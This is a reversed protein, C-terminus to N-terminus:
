IKGSHISNQSILRSNKSIKKSNVWKLWIIFSIWSIEDSSALYCNKHSKLSKKGAWFM